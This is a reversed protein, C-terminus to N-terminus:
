RCPPRPRSVVRTNQGNKKLPHNFYHEDLIKRIATAGIGQAFKRVAQGDKWGIRYKKTKAAADELMRLAGAGFTGCTWFELALECGRFRDEHRHHGVIRPVRRTLWDEIEDSGVESSPQYGRCEYIGIQRQKVMRVDIEASEGNKSDRVTIGIDISGGILEKVLHGVILEFISHYSGHRDGIALSRSHLGTTLRGAM